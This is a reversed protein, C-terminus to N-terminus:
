KPANKVYPNSQMRMTHTTVLPMYYDGRMAHFLLRMFEMQSLGSYAENRKFKAAEMAFRAATAM